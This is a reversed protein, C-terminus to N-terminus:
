WLNAVIDPINGIALLNGFHHNMIEGFRQNEYQIMATMAHWQELIYIYVYYVRIKPFSKPAGRNQSFRMQPKVHNPSTKVSSPDWFIDMRLVLLLAGTTAGVKKLTSCRKKQPRNTHQSFQSFYFITVFWFCVVLNGDVKTDKKCEPGALSWTWLFFYPFFFKNPQHNPVNKWINHIDDDWTVFESKESPDTFCWGAPDEQTPWGFGGGLRPGSGRGPSSSHRQCSFPM